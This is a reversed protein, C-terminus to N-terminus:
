CSSSLVLLSLSLDLNFCAKVRMSSRTTIAIMPMRETTTRTESFSARSLPLDAETSEFRLFM